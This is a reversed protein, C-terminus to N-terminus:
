IELTLVPQPTSVAVQVAGRAAAAGGVMLRAVCDGALMQM